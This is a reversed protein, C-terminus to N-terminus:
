RSNLYKGVPQNETDGPVTLRDAIDGIQRPKHYAISGPPKDLRTDLAAAASNKGFGADDGFHFKRHADKGRGNTCLFKKVM